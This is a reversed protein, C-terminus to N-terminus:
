IFAISIQNKKNSNSKQNSKKNSKQNKIKSKQNKIKSKQNSFIIFIISNTYEGGFENHNMRLIRAHTMYTIYYKDNRRTNLSQKLQMSNM